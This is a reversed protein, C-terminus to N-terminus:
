SLVALQSDTANDPPSQFNRVKLRAELRPLRIQRSKLWNSKNFDTDLMVFSEQGVDLIAGPGYPHLVQSQRVSRKKM